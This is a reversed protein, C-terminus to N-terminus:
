ARDWPIMWVLQYITGKGKKLMQIPMKLLFFQIRVQKVWDEQM